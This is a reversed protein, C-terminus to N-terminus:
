NGFYIYLCKYDLWVLIRDRWSGKDVLFIQSSGMELLSSNHLLPKFFGLLTVM